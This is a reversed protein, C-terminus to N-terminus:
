FSDQQGQRYRSGEDVGDEDFHHYSSNGPCDTHGAAVVSDM